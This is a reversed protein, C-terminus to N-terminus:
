EGKLTLQKLLLRVSNETANKQIQKRSGDFIKKEVVAVGPGAVAYYVLGVPKKKTGGTPGAVGTVAIAWDCRLTKLAGEAMSLAVEKSVAGFKQLDKNGVGLLDHKLSNAYSVVSGLFFRSAGSGSTLAASIQGGTCSEAVGLTEGRSSLRDSVTKLDRTFSM